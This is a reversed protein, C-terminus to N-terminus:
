QLEMVAIKLVIVMTCETNEPVKPPMLRNHTLCEKTPHQHVWSGRHSVSGEVSQCYKLTKKGCCKQFVQEKGISNVQCRQEFDSSWLIHPRNKSKM